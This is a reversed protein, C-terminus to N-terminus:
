TWISIAEGDEFVLTLGREDRWTSKVTKGIANDLPDVETEAVVRGAWTM